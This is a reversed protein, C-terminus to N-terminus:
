FKLRTILQRFTKRKFKEDLIANARPQLLLNMHNMWEYHYGRKINQWHLASLYMKLFALQQPGKRSWYEQLHEKYFYLSRIIRRKMHYQRVKMIKDKQPQYKVSNLRLARLFQLSYYNRQTDKSKDIALSVSNRSSRQKLRVFFL